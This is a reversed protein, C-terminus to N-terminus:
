GTNGTYSRILTSESQKISHFLYFYKLNVGLILIRATDKNQTFNKFFGYRDTNKHRDLEYKSNLSVAPDRLQTAMPATNKFFVRAGVLHNKVHKKTLHGSFRM